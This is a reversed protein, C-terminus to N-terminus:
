KKNLTRLYVIINKAQQDTLNAVGKPGIMTRMATGIRGRKMTQYIYDDSAVDLFSALGIGTGPVGAFYGQGKDGHCSACYTKFDAGGQKADGKYKKSNDVIVKGKYASRLYSVIADLQEGKLDPRPIMTTMARGKIVTNKIFEDSALSLFDKNRISPALGVKGQGESQHCPSCHMLFLQKGKEVNRLEDVEVPIPQPKSQHILALNSTGPPSSACSALCCWAAISLILCCLPLLIQRYSLKAARM